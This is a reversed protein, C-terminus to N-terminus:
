KLYSTILYDDHNTSIDSRGSRYRGAALAARRRMPATIATEPLRMAMNFENLKHDILEAIMVSLEDATMDAVKRSQRTPRNRRKRQSLAM